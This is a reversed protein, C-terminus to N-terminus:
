LSEDEHADITRQLFDVLFAPEDQAFRDSFMLLLVAFGLIVLPAAVGLWLDPPLPGNSGLWFRVTHILIAGSIVVVAGIWIELIKRVLPHLGVTCHLRTQGNDEVLKGSLWCQAANRYYMRKRLCISTEGVSGQVPKSGAMSWTGDTAARLRRM